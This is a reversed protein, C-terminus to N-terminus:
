KPKPRHENAQEQERWYCCCWCLCERLWDMLYEFRLYHIFFCFRIDSRAIPFGKSPLDRVFKSYVNPGENLGHATLREVKCMISLAQDWSCTSRVPSLVRPPYTLYVKRIMRFHTSFLGKIRLPAKSPTGFLEPCTPRGLPSLISLQVCLSLLM